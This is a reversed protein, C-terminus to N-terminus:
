DAIHYKSHHCKCGPKRKNYPFTDFFSLYSLGLFYDNTAYIYLFKSCIKCNFYCNNNIEGMNEFLHIGYYLFVIRGFIKYSVWRIAHGM